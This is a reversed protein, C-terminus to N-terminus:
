DMKTRVLVLAGDRDLGLHWHYDLPLYLAINEFEGDTRQYMEFPRLPVIKSHDIFDSEEELKNRLILKKYRMKSRREGLAKM